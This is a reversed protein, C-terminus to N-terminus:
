VPEKSMARIALLVPFLGHLQSAPAETVRKFMGYGLHHAAVPAVRLMQMLLKGWSRSTARPEKLEVALELACESLVAVEQRTQESEGNKDWEASYHRVLELWVVELRAKLEDNPYYPLQSSAVMIANTAAVPDSAVLASLDLGNFVAWLGTQLDPYLPLDGVVLKIAYWSAGDQPDNALKEVAQRVADKINSSSIGRVDSPEFLASLAEARDGGFFSGAGNAMLAPDQILSLYKEHREDASLFKEIVGKAGVSELGQPDNVGLTSAVAHTLFVARNLFRPHLCDNWYDAERHLIDAEVRLPIRQFRSVLREPKAGAGALQDHLGCAHAWVLLLRVSPPLAMAGAVSIFERNVHHLILGFAEFNVKGDQGFMEELVSKASDLAVPEDSSSRLVLDVYQLKGVPSQWETKFRALMDRMEAAESERFLEVLRQPMKVPLHAFRSLAAAVGQDAALRAAAAPLEIPLDFQEGITTPLGFHRLLSDVAAPLLGSEPIRNNAVSQERLRWYFYDASKERSANVRDFRARPDAISAVEKVDIEFALGDADFWSRYRRLVAERESVDDKMVGLIPDGYRYPEPAGPGSVVLVIRPDNATDATFAYVEDPAEALEKRARVQAPRGNVADAAARWFDDADFQISGIDVVDTLEFGLWEMLEPKLKMAERLSVPLDVYFQYKVLGDILNLDPRDKPREYADSFTTSISAAASSIAEPDAVRRPSVLRVDLWEFFQRRREYGRPELSNGHIAQGYVFASGLDLGIHEVGDGRTGPNPLLHMVGFLGTYLNRLVWESRARAEEVSTAEDAWVGVLTETVARTVDSIFKLEGTMNPADQPLPPRQIYAPDLLCAALYRRLVALEFTETLRGEPTVSARKLHYLIEKSSVPVYRYNGARLKILKEYYQQQTIEGRLMLALLIENIGIIPATNDRSVYANISRDDFCLVDDKGCEFSFLHSTTALDWNGEAQEEEGEAEAGAMSTDIGEYLNNELGARLREVLGAVWAETEARRESSEVFARVAEAYGADIFVEFRESTLGLVGAKALKSVSDGILFLKAGQPFANPQANTEETERGISEIAREYEGESLDGGSRLSAAVATYDTIRERLEDPLAVPEMAQDTTATPLGIVFGGEDRARLLVSLRDKGILDILDSHVDATNSDRGILHLTGRDLLSTIIRNIEDQAPMPPRLNERQAILATPLLRSIHLPAFCRELLELLELDAAVLLATIDLHLRWSRSRKALEESASRGGHRIFIAPQLAPRPNHRNEEPVRHLLEALQIQQAQAYLHSPVKGKYYNETAVYRQRLSEEAWARLQDGHLVHAPGRGEATFEQMREYLPKVEPHQTDFGLANALLLAEVVLNPDDFVSAKARRWLERALEKHELLVLRAARVLSQSGIDDRGLLARATVALGKLDGAQRQVDLLDIVNETAPDDVALDEAAKVAQALRGAKVLCRSRLRRIDSPLAGEPFLHTNEELLALCRKPQKANWASAAALRVADATGILEILTRGSDAIYEWDKLFYKLRCLELLYAGEGTEEFSRALHESLPQWDGTRFGIERLAMFRVRQRTAQDPERDAEELAKEPEGHIVCAQGYWFTWSSAIGSSVFDEKSRALLSIAEVTKRLKLQTAVLAIIKEARLPDEDDGEEKELLEGLAKEGAGLDFEYDRVVAWLLARHNAPDAHLLERCFEAAEDQREPANAICALRWIENVRREAEGRQTEAALRAFQDELSRLLQQSETDVKVFSLDVPQPWPVFGRPAVSPSLCSFYKVVAALARASEWQPREALVGEVESLANLIDGAMLLAIAALRHMEADPKFPAPPYRALRLAEEARNDYILLTLKLNFADTSAPKGLEELARAADEEYLSLLTRIIADDGSPDLAKADQVLQRARPIDYEVTLVMGAEVRLAKARVGAELYQWSEEEHMERIRKLADRVKGERSLERIQEIEKAKEQSLAGSLANLLGNISPDPGASGSQAGSGQAAQPQVSLDSQPEDFSTTRPQVDETPQQLTLDELMAEMRAIQEKTRRQERELGQQRRLLSGVDDSSEPKGAPKNRPELPRDKLFHKAYQAAVAAAYPQWDQKKDRDARDCIAKMVMHHRKEASQWVAASFGYGEMEIALTKRHRAAIEDRIAAEAIVREGSAIVGKLITPRTQNADPRPVPIRARMPPLTIVNNWLTADAKYTIPEPKVGDRTVKGREYYHVYQGLILDGLAEDDERSGDSAAGAVGVLLLASPDWDHITDNTLIAAEVQAMEPSQAVVIEYYENGKLPLSGRWYVRVGVRERHRHTLKFAACVAEREVEIATIFAFDILPKAGGGGGSRKARKSQRQKVAV